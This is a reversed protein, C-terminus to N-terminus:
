IKEQLVKVQAIMSAIDRNLTKLSDEGMLRNRSISVLEKELEKYEKQNPHFAKIKEEREKINALDTALDAEHAVVKRQREVILNDLTEILEIPTTGVKAVEKYMVYVNGNDLFHMKLIIHSAIFQTLEQDTFGANFTKFQM